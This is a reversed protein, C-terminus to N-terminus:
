AIVVFVFWLVVPAVVTVGAAYYLLQRFFVDKDVGVFALIGMNVPVVTAIVFMLALALISILEAPCPSGGPFGVAKPRLRHGPNDPASGAKRGTLVQADDFVPVSKGSAAPAPAPAVPHPM